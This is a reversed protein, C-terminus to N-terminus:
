TGKVAVSSEAVNTSVTFLIFASEQTEDGMRIQLFSVCKSFCEKRKQLGGARGGFFRWDAGDGVRIATTAGILRAVLPDLRGMTM